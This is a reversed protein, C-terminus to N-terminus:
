GSRRHTSEASLGSHDRDAPDTRSPAGFLRVAAYAARYRTAGGDTRLGPIEPSESRALRQGHRERRSDDVAGIPGFRASYLGAGGASTVHVRAGGIFGGGGDGYRFLAVLRADTLFVLEFLEADVRDAEQRDIGHLLRLRTMGARRHAHGVHGENQPGFKQAVIWGIRLPAIAVAENKGGTVGRHEEIRQQMQGAVFVHGDILQLLEPLPTRTRGSM